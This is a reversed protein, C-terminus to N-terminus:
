QRSILKPSAALVAEGEAREAEQWPTSEYDPFTPSKYKPRLFRSFAQPLGNRTRYHKKPDQQSKNWGATLEPWRIKDTRLRRAVFRM